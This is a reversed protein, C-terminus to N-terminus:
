LDDILTSAARLHVRLASAYCLAAAAAIASMIAIPGIRDLNQKILIGIGTTILAVAGYLGIRLEAFVSFAAGRDLAIARSAVAADIVGAWNLEHLEAEYCISM